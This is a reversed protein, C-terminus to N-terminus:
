RRTPVRMLSQCLALRPAVPERLAQRNAPSSSSSTNAPRTSNFAEVRNNATDCVLINSNAAIARASAQQFQGVGAGATGIQSPIAGSNHPARTTVGAGQSPAPYLM